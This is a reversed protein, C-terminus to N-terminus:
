YISYFDNINTQIGSINSSEDTLYVIAEQMVGNFNGGGLPHEGIGLGDGIAISGFSQASTVPTINDVYISQLTSNHTGILLRQDATTSIGNVTNISASANRVRYFYNTTASLAVFNFVDTSFYTSLIFGSSSNSVSIFVYNESDGTLNSLLGDDSGDFQVAPKGNELIVSGSSVIQPQSSATGQTADRSNGSQDYWTTVFGNTGSCFSELADVNLSGDYKAYIDQTANDSARRVEILAGTYSSSLARLSYAAASGSYTDLLSTQSGDWYIQYQANINTEIGSRNSSQDSPYLILEQITGDLYHDDGDNRAGINFYESNQSFNSTSVTQLTDQDVSINVNADTHKAFFLHQLGNSSTQSNVVSGDGNDAFYKNDTWLGLRVRGRQLPTTSAFSDYIFNFDSESVIRSVAFSSVTAGIILNNQIYDDTGDFEVAPKGGQTIVSGSSVIQPQASATTQTANKPSVTDSQDYWTVVFGDTGSCFSELTTVDLENNVFGIDAEAPTGVLRRVKIASGTYGARLKRLSYAAAANQYDDLLLAVDFVSQSGIAGLKTPLQGEFLKDAFGRFQGFDAM